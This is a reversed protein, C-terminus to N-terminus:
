PTRTAKTCGEVPTFPREPHRSRFADLEGPTYGDAAGCPLRRQVFVEIMKGARAGDPTNDMEIWLEYLIRRRERLSYRTDAWLEDLRQPLTDLAERMLHKREEIALKMRFEFTASLFRAKDRALPDKGLARMIEDTLDFGGSVSIMSGSQMSPPVYTSSSPPSVENPEQRRPGGQAPEPPPLWPARRASTPDTATRPATPPSEPRRQNRAWPPAMNVSFRKGKFTVTGDPAVRAEFKADEYFYGRGWKHLGYSGEVASTPQVRPAWLPIGADRPVGADPSAAAVLLVVLRIM